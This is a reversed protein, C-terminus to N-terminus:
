KLEPDLRTCTKSNTSIPAKSNHTKSVQWHPYLGILGIFSSILDSCLQMTVLRNDEESTHLFTSLKHMSQYSIVGNNPAINVLCFFFM